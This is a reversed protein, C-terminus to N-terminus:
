VNPTRLDPHEPEQSEVRPELSALDRRVRRAVRSLLLRPMFRKIRWLWRERIGMVVYLKRRRRTSRLAAAAVREPTLRSRRVYLETLQRMAQSHITARAAFQTQMPGPCVVTVGIGQDRLETYLTESLAIVGAKTLNYIAMQPPCYYAFISAVNIITPRPVIQPRWFFGPRLPGDRGAEGRARASDALWPTMTDCGYIVSLLNLRVVQEMEALDLNGIRGSSFMGANNILLDLRPWDTQLRAGLDRWAEVDTVDCLEVRGTGGAQEVARLTEESEARNIDVIAVQWGARALQVCFERGLGGAGGTVIAFQTAPDAM